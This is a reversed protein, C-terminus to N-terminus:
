KTPRRTRVLRYWSGRKRPENVNPNTATHEIRYSPPLQRRVESIRTSTSVTDTWMAIQPIPLWIDVWQLLVRYVRNAANNGTLTGCHM